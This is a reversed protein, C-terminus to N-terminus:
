QWSGLIAGAIIFVILYYGINLLYLKVPKKDWLVTGLMVTVIFGLWLLIGTGAGAGSSTVQTAQLVWALVFTLVVTGIFNIGYSKAMGKSKAKQLQQHTMGSLKMWIKGFLPGYWVVGLAMNIIATILIALYNM